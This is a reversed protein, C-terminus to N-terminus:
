SGVMFARGGDYRRFFQADDPHVGPRGDPAYVQCGNGGPVSYSWGSSPGRVGFSGDRRGIYKVLVRGGQPVIAAAVPVPATQGAPQHGVPRGRGCGRCMKPERGNYYEEHKKHVMAKAEEHQDPNERLAALRGKAHRRYHYVVEQVHYGHYGNIAMRIWYEWDELGIQFEPDWGGIQKWADKEHLSGVPMILTRLLTTFFFEPMKMYKSFDVGFSIVDGYVVGFDRGGAQWAELMVEMSRPPLIDDHDLPLLFRGQAKSAALNRAYAVGSAESKTKFARIRKDGELYHRISTIPIGGDKVVILEWDEYTQGLVSDIAEELWEVDDSTKARVPTIVSVNAM